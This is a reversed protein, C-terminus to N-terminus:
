KFSFKQYVPFIQRAFFWRLGVPRLRNRFSALIGVKIDKMEENSALSCEVSPLNVKESVRRCFLACLPSLLCMPQWDLQFSSPPIPTGSASADSSKYVLKNFFFVKRCNHIKEGFLFKWYLVLAWVAFAYLSKSGRSWMPPKLAGLSGLQNIWEAFSLECKVRMQNRFTSMETYCM